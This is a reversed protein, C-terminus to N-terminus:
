LNFIQLTSLVDETTVNYKIVKDTDSFKLVIPREVRLRIEELTDFKDKIDNEIQKEIKEPFYKLIEDM